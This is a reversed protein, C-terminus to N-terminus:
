LSFLCFSLGSFFENIYVLVWFGTETERLRVKLSKETLIRLIWLERERQSSSSSSLPM